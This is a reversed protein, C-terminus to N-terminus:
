AGAAIAEGALRSLEDEHRSIAELASVCRPCFQTGALRRLEALSTERSRAPRYVRTSIMSDFADAVHIIRSELSARVGRM